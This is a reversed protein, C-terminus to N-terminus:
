SGTGKVKLSDHFVERETSFNKNKGLIPSKMEM